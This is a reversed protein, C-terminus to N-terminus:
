IIDMFENSVTWREVSSEQDVNVVGYRRGEQKVFQTRRPKLYVFYWLSSTREQISTSLKLNNEFLRNRQLKHTLLSMANIACNIHRTPDVYYYYINLHNAESDSSHEIGMYPLAKYVLSLNSAKDCSQTERIVVYAQHDYYFTSSVTTVFCGIERKHLLLLIIINVPDVNQSYKILKPVIDVWSTM